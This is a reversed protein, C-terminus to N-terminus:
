LFFFHLCQSAKGHAKNNVWEGQHVRGDGWSFTGQLLLCSCGTSSSLRSSALFLCNVCWTSGLLANALRRHQVATHLVPNGWVFFCTPSKGAVKQHCFSAMKVITKHVESSVRFPPTGVSVGDNNKRKENKRPRSRSAEQRTYLPTLSFALNRAVATHVVISQPTDECIRDEQWGGLSRHVAERAAM